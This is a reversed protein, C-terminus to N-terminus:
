THYCKIRKPIRHVSCVHVIILYGIFRNYIIISRITVYHQMAAYETIPNPSMSVSKLMRIEDLASETYDIASKVVKLASFNHARYFSLFM